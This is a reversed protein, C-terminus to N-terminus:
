PRQHASLETTSGAPVVERLPRMQREWALLGRRWKALDFLAKLSPGGDKAVEKELALIKGYVDMAEQPAEIKEYVLGIQYLVPVQWGVSDDLGALSLYIDLAYLFEGERYLQNAIENGARRQWYLWNRPDAQATAQQSRLLQLVQATSESKRGLRKLALACHFRIEAEADSQLHHKLFEESRAVVESHRDLEFLSRILDSYVQSRNLDPSTSKLLRQLFDVAETHNGQDMHTRAIEVQAELVLRQYYQQQDINITLASNMLKYFKLKALEYAGMERYIRGMRLYVEPLNPDEPFQVAFQSFVQQATVYRKDQEATVALELLASRKIPLPAQSDMLAAFTKVAATTNYTRRHRRGWELQQEYDEVPKAKAEGHLPSLVYANSARAETQRLSLDINSPEQNSRPPISLDSRQAEVSAPWEKMVERWALDATEPAASAAPESSPASSPGVSAASEPETPLVATVRSRDHDDAVENGLGLHAVSILV